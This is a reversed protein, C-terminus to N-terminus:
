EILDTLKDIGYQIVEAKQLYYHFQIFAYVFANCIFCVFFIYFFNKLKFQPIAIYFFNTMILSILMSLIFAQRYTYPTNQNVHTMEELIELPDDQSHDIAQKKLPVCFDFAMSADCPNRFTLTAEVAVITLSILILIIIGSVIVFRM